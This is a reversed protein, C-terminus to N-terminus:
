GILESLIVLLLSVILLIGDTMIHGRPYAIHSQILHGEQGPPPTHFRPDCGWVPM